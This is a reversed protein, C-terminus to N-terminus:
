SSHHPSYQHGNQSQQDTIRDEGKGAIPRNLKEGAVSEVTGHLRAHGRHKRDPREARYASKDRTQDQPRPPAHDRRQPLRLALIDSATHRTTGVRALIAWM